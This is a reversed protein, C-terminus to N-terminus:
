QVNLVSYHLYRREQRFKAQEVYRSCHGRCNAQNNHMRSPGTWKIGTRCHQRGQAYMEVRTAAFRYPRTLTRTARM